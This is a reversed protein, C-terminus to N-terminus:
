RILTFSVYLCKGNELLCDNLTESSKSEFMNKMIKEDLHQDKNLAGQQELLCKLYCM